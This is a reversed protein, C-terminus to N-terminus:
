TVDGQLQLTLLHETRSVDIVVSFLLQIFPKPTIFM